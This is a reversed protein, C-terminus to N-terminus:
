TAGKDLEGCVGLSLRCDTGEVAALGHWHTCSEGEGLFFFFVSVCVCVMCCGDCANM